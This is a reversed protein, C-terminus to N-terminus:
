FEEGAQQTQVTASSAGSRKKLQLQPSAKRLQEVANIIKTAAYDVEAETTFRGLGIRVTCLALEENLGIAKLVHSWKGAEMDASSCASGSSIAIDKKLAMMLDDAPVYPITINLNNCLRQTSHGNRVAGEVTLLRRELADRLASLRASEDRLSQVAIEVAKAFGVIAPVNLTGSRLGREHGGGDIQQVLKVRPSRSRVYLAGIGKPGYTKHGSVSMLHVGMSQVDIPIKGLCQTADTHFYIGREACLRAVEAVPAITGIENNAMMVSVLITGERLARGIEDPDILGHGDPSVYTVRFGSRELSRCVDLVSKHETTASVIHTGKSRCAEAVGKLALNNAETAGSTFIVERPEANISRAIAKRANEVAGDAVWGYQHQRSAANGFHETFYPMMAVVVRQDTPTTAHYDLYIPLKM